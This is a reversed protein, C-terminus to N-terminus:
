HDLQHAAIHHKYISTVFCRGASGGAQLGLEVEIGRANACRVQVVGSVREGGGDFRAGVPPELGLARSRDVEHAKVVGGIAAIRRAVPTTLIGVTLLRNGRAKFSRM